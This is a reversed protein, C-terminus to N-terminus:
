GALLGLDIVKDGSALAGRQVVAYQTGARPRQIIGVRFADGTLLVNRTHEPLLADLQEILKAKGRKSQTTALSTSLTVVQERVHKPIWVCLSSAGRPSSKSGKILIGPPPACPIRGLRVVLHATEAITQYWGDGNDPVFAACFEQEGYLQCLRLWKATCSHPGNAAAAAEGAQLHARWNIPFDRPMGALALAAARVCLAACVPETYRERLSKETSAMEREAQEITLMGDDLPSLGDLKRVLAPLGDCGQNWFPDVAYERGILKAALRWAIPHTNWADRLLKVNHAVDAAEDGDKANEAKETLLGGSTYYGAAAFENYLSLVGRVEVGDVTRDEPTYPEDPDGYIWGPPRWDHAPSTLDPTEIPANM